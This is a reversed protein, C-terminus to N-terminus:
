SRAAPMCDRSHSVMNRTTRLAESAGWREGKARVVILTTVCCGALISYPVLDSTVQALAGSGAAAIAQGAAWALNTMGFALGQNLHLRDAGRSLLATAPAYLAGFAPM